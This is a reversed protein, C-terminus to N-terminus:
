YVRITDRPSIHFRAAPPLKASLAQAISSAPVLRPMEEGGFQVARIRESHLPYRIYSVALSPIARFVLLTPVFGSPGM